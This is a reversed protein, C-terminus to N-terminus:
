KHIIVIYGCLDLSQKDQVSKPSKHSGGSVTIGSLGNTLTYSNITDMSNMTMSSNSSMFTKWDFEPKLGGMDTNAQHLDSLPITCEYGNPNTISINDLPDIGTIISWHGRQTHTRNGRDGIVSTLGNKKAKNKFTFNSFAILVPNSGSGNIKNKLENADAFNERIAKYGLKQVISQMINFTFIEGVNSGAQEAAENYEVNTKCGGLSAIAMKICFLGCNGGSQSILTVPCIRQITNNTNKKSQISDFKCQLFKDKNSSIVRQTTTYKQLVTQINAQNASKPTPQITHSVPQPQKVQTRM